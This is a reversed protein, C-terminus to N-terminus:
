PKLSGVYASISIIDDSSLRAVVSKMPAVGAGDSSGNQIGILQRAIYVPQLGALRPVEGLGRLGEGHCSVCPQTKGAAGTKVLKEGRALSGPPVYAIFNSYPDRNLTRFVDVPLQLIRKGLPETGGAPHLMRTRGIASIYTRPVTAAEIVQVSARRQIVAFYQAAQLVQEDSLTRALENMRAPEKREGSRFYQMQRVFYGVPLGTLEANEPHGLGTMMHCSGCAMPPGDKGGAVVPPPAPHEGPYWDPPDKFSETLAADYERASGPLRVPGKMEIVEPQVPDIVHFAWGPLGNPGTAEPRTLASTVCGVLAVCVAIPLCFLVPSRVIRM